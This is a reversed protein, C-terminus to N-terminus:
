TNKRSTAGAPLIGSSSHPFFLKQFRPIFFNMLPGGVVALLVTGAGITSGMLWGLFLATLDCLIRCWQFKVPAHEALLLAISDYPAIGLDPVMYLAGGTYLVLTGVLLFLVRLFLGADATAPLITRYVSRLFDAIIGCFTMDIITGIGIMSRKLFVPLFLILMNFLLSWLWFPIGTQKSVGLNLCTCPDTGYGAYVCFSIGIGTLSVGASMILTRRIFQKTKM